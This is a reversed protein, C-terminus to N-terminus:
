FNIWFSKLLPEVGPMEYDLDQEGRHLKAKPWLKKIRLEIQDFTLEEHNCSFLIQGHDSLVDYCATLLTELDDKLKFVKKNNRSFSPPDCIILDWRREKKKAIKLYDFTDFASWEAQESSLNNIEWNKQAWSLFNKSLDVTSVKKAKGLGAAVSFLGTYAFLNLVNKDRSVDMVKLRNLRQDLFIGASLGQNKRLELKIKNETAIWTEPTSGIEIIEQLNPSEGRNHRFQLIMSKGIQSSIYEFREIDKQIPEKISYWNCWLVEGLQDIRFDPSEDHVLRLCENPTGLFEFLRQRRDFGCHIQVWETDRTSGLREFFRPAPSNWTKEGPIELSLAHLCIQPFNSGGYTIDGLINLGLDAAHLRIQHQKGSLPEAQWLAFFPSRKILTFKTESNPQLSDPKSSLNKGIKTIESQHLIPDVVSQGEIDFDLFRDTVFWYKKKVEKAEFSKRLSEVKEPNLAFVICGTTTKDLRHAVWLKQRLKEELYEAFGKQGKDSAHTSIGYPKDAFLLQNDASYTIRM